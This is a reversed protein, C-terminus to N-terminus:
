TSWPAVHVVEPQDEVPLQPLDPRAELVEPATIFPGISDPVKIVAGRPTLARLEDRTGVILAGRSTALTAEGSAEDAIILAYM